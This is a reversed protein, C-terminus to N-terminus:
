LSHPATAALGPSIATLGRKMLEAQLQAAIVYPEVVAYMSKENIELIRNMRRLDIKICGPGTPDCYLWGTSSAKYQVNHKNCFKVIAQVESTDKPLTVAEFRPITMRTETELGSGGAVGSRMPFAYSEIIVPDESVNEPGLLDELARYFDRTLAM